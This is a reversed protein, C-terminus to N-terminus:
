ADEDEEEESAEEEEEEESAEVNVEAIAEAGEEMNPKSVIENFENETADDNEPQVAAEVVEDVNAVKEESELDSLSSSRRHRKVCAEDHDEESSVEEHKRKEIAQEDATDEQVIVVEETFVRQRKVCQQEHDASVDKLKRGM